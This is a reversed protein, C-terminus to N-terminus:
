CDVGRTSVSHSRQYFLFLTTWNIWISVICEFYQTCRTTMDKKKLIGLISNWNGVFYIICPNGWEKYLSVILINFTLPNKRMGRLKGCSSWFVLIGVNLKNWGLFLHFIRLFHWFSTLLLGSPIRNKLLVNETKDQSILSM